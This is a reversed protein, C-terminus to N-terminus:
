PGIWSGFVIDDSHATAADGERVLGRAINDSLKQLTELGEGRSGRQCRM